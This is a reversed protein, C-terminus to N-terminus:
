PAERSVAECGESCTRPQALAPIVATLASRRELDWGLRFFEPPALFRAASPGALPGSRRSAGASWGGLSSTSSNTVPPLEVPAGDGPDVALHHARERRQQGRQRRQGQSCGATGLQLVGVILGLLVSALVVDILRMTDERGRAKRTPGQRPARVRWWPRTRHGWERRNAAASATGGPVPSFVDDSGEARWCSDARRPLSPRSGMRATSM